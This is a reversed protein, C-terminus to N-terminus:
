FLLLFGFCEFVPLLLIPQKLLSVFLDLFHTLSKIFRLFTPTNTSNPQRGTEFRRRSPAAPVTPCFCVGSHKGEIHRQKRLIKSRLERMTYIYSSTVFSYENRCEVSPLGENHVGAHFHGHPVLMLVDEMAQPYCIKVDSCHIDRTTTSSPIAYTKHIPKTEM